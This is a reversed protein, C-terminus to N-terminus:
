VTKGLRSPTTIATYSSVSRLLVRSPIRITRDGIIPRADSVLLTHVCGDCRFFSREDLDHINTLTDLHVSYLTRIVKYVKVLM